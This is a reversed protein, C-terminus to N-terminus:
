PKSDPPQREAATVLGMKTSTSPLPKLGFLSVSPAGSGTFAASQDRNQGTESRTLVRSRLDGLDRALSREIRRDVVLLGWSNMRWEFIM